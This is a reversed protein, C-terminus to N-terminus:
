EQACLLSRGKAVLSDAGMPSWGRYTPNLNTTSSTSALFTVYFFVTPLPFPSCYAMEVEGLRLRKMQLTLMIVNEKLTIQPLLCM